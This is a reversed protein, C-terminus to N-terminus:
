RMAELLANVDRHFVDIDILPKDALSPIRQKLADEYTPLEAQYYIGIPIPEKEYSKVVAAAKKSVIEQEDTVDHVVGDFGAEELKYLRSKKEPLDAGEYWEKTYLDNYTPCTQLVDVLAAGKHEIAKAIIGSLHKPELAYGRAIFTYGAAVAMAIPNIGDQIAQEPMSKTRKGKSLTPSAQGKTLGYVNNNHVLYAMDLNRRGSNVFYGAGIGYGDGDGGLAIVTVASNVLRAGTAVPLVRGHLTHFGYAKIYHPTKGSCGIGSFVAVKDPDLALQALAMQIGTLIGFDGCNHMAGVTSVYSHVDEVEFNHVYGEYSVEENATVRILFISDERPQAIGPGVAVLERLAVRMPLAIRDGVAVQGAPVWDANLPTTPDGFASARIVLVPHDDTIRVNRGGLVTIRRLSAPHWHSMVKRVRHPKGDHGIVQDEVAVDAILKWTGDAMAIRTDPTLCGPCWDNHLDSKYDKITFKKVPAEVSM